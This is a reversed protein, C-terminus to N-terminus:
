DASLPFVDPNVLRRIAPLLDMALLGRGGGEEAAMDAARAHLYVGLRAADYLSFHQALLGSIVGTLVDGMGGSAMGPNGGTCVSVAGGDSVLTGSGKLVCVGGYQQQIAHIARMRDQQIDAATTQLLRAAEGPHPTLVWHTQKRPASALIRLADADVVLPKQLLVSQEFLERAEEDTGLGPGIAVVSARGFAQQLASSDNSRCSMIEPRPPQGAHSVLTTLGAGTRACAEAAMQVAGQLGERGGIILAHGYDGKHSSPKRTMLYRPLLSHSLREAVPSIGTYVSAPLQLDDFVLTGTYDGAKGTLLGQKLGIFCVTVDAMVAAGKPMGTDSDLGSPIDVAMVPLGARNIEQIVRLWEAAVPRSLGTGLVADVIVTCSQDADEVPTALSHHSQCAVWDEYATLADGTLAALDGVATVTVALGAEMALRAIVYGDGGNNGVGCYLCLAQCDPWTDRLHHLCAAGARQMLEYGGIGHDEIAIRDLERVQWTTYVTRPLKVRM